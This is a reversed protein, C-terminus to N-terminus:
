LFSLYMKKLPVLLSLSTKSTMRVKVMVVNSWHQKVRASQVDSHQPGPRKLSGHMKDVAKIGFSILM